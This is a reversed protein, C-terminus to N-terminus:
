LLALSQELPVPPRGSVDVVEGAGELFINGEGPVRWALVCAWPCLLTLGFAAIHLCCQERAVSSLRLESM